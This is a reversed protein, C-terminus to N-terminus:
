RRPFLFDRHVITRIGCCSTHFRSSAGLATAQLNDLSAPVPVTFWDPPARTRDHPVNARPAVVRDPRALRDRTCERRPYVYTRMGTATARRWRRRHVGNRRLTAVATERPNRHASDHIEWQEPANRTRALLCGTTCLLEGRGTVVNIKSVIVFHYFSLSFTFTLFLVHSLFLSLSFVTKRFRQLVLQLIGAPSRYSCATCVPLLIRSRTLPHFFSELISFARAKRRIRRNHTYSQAMITRANLLLSFSLALSHPLHLSRATFSSSPFFSVSLSLVITLAVLPLSLPEVTFRLSFSRPLPSYRAPLFPPFSPFGRRWFTASFALASVTITAAQRVRPM